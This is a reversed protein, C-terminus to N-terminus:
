RLVRRMTLSNSFIVAFIIVAMSSIALTYDTADLWPLPDIFYVQCVFLGSGVLACVFGLLSMRSGLMLLVAGAVGTWVGLARGASVWLPLLSLHFSYEEPGSNQVEVFDLAAKSFWTLLLFSILCDQLRTESRSLM